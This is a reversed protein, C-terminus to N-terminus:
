FCLLPSVFLMERWERNKRKGVRRLCLLYLGVKAQTRYLEGYMDQSREDPTRIGAGDHIDHQSYLSGSVLQAANAHHATKRWM